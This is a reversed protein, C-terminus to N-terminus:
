GNFRFIGEEMVCNALEEQGVVGDSPCAVRIRSQQAKKLACVLSGGIASAPIPRRNFARDTTRVDRGWNSCSAAIIWIVFSLVSVWLTDLSRV